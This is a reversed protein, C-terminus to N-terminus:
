YSVELVDNLIKSIESERINGIARKNYDEYFMDHCNSIYGDHSIRFGYWFDPNWNQLNVIIKNNGSENYTQFVADNRDLFLKDMDIIKRSLLEKQYKLSRFDNRIHIELDKYKSFDIVNGNIINQMLDGYEQIPLSMKDNEYISLYPSILFHTIGLSYVEDILAPIANKNLKNLTFSIFVKKELGYNSLKRMNSSIKKFTGNGRINDNIKEDGELSIDIYDIDINILENIKSDDLLIGNTVMGFKITSDNKKKDRFYHFIEKTKEWTLLPEKGVVGFVKAGSEICYDFAKSWEKISLDNNSENFGVYCHKCKLNCIDNIFYDVYKINLESGFKNQLENFNNIKKAPYTIGGGSGSIGLAM